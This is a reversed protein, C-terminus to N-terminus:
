RHKGEAKHKIDNLMKEKFEREALYYRFLKEPPLIKKFQEHYARVVKARNVESYILQDNLKAYDINGDKKIHRLQERLRGIEWKKQELENYLPWFAKEEEETMNMKHRIFEIKKAKLEDIQQSRNPQQAFLSVSAIVIVAFVM